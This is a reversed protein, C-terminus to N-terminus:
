LGEEAVGRMSLSRIIIGQRWNMSWQEAWMTQNGQQPEDGERAM